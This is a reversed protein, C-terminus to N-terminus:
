HRGGAGHLKMSSTKIPSKDLQLNEKLKLPNVPKFDQLFATLVENMETRPTREEEAVECSGIFKFSKSPFLHSRPQLEPILSCINLEESTEYAFKIPNVVEIGLRNCFSIYRLSFAPM